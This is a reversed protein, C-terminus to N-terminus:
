RPPAKQRFGQLPNWFNLLSAKEPEGVAKSAAATQVARDQHPVIQVDDVLVEGMGNLAITLTLDTDKHVERILQFPQWGQQMTVRVAGPVGALSDYITVGDLNGVVPNVLKTWGSLHVIQGARVRVTPSTAVVPPKSIVVPPDVGTEPVAILRLSSHGRHVMSYLEAQARVGEVSNQSRTWGAHVVAQPDEFDGSPVLNEMPRDTSRGIREVLRWHDPLTDFCLTYPSAVSSSFRSRAVASNWHAYALTRLAQMANGADDRAQPYNEQTLALEARQAFKGAQSMLERGDLQGNGMASLEEDIARVRELKARALEVSIRASTASMTRIRAEILERLKPDSCVLIIATQDLKPLTVQYYGSTKVKKLSRLGTTTVEWFRATEDPEPVLIKAENAALRGPVFQADHAFWTVLVIKFYPGKFITAETESPTFKEDKQQRERENLKALFERREADSSPFDLERRKIKRERDNVRFPTVESLNARALFPEILEMELNLQQIALRREVRGPGELNLSSKTWYGIGRYGACLAAYVQLRIQEPEIVIPRLGAARRWENTAPLPETQVWTFLFSGPNALKGRQLLWDRYNKLTFTTGLIHRSTGLVSIYRSYHREDGSVDALVPRQLRFDDRQLQEMRAIVEDRRQPPLRTGLNWLLIEPSHYPSGNKNLIDSPDLEVGNVSKAERPPLAAAYLGQQRLEALRGRDAADAVWVINVHMDKLQAPNEGHDPLVIPIRPQGEIEFQGHRVASIRHPPGEAETADPEVPEAAQDVGTLPGVHLEDVFLETRGRPVTFTVAVADVYSERPDFGELRFRARLLQLLNQKAKDSTECTLQQWKDVDKYEGGEILTQLVHGTDPDKQHPFRIRLCLRAGPQNSRVWLVAKLEPIVRGRVSLKQGVAMEVGHRNAEISFQESATGKHFTQFSRQHQVVADSTETISWSTQPGDCADDHDAAHARDTRLLVLAITGCLATAYLTRSFFGKM